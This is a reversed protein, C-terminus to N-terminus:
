ARYVLRTKIPGGLSSVTFEQDVRRGRRWPFWSKSETRSERLEIEDGVFNDPVTFYVDHEVVNDDEIGECRIRLKTVNFTRPEILLPDTMEAYRHVIGQIVGRIVFQYAM